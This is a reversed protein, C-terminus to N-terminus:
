SPARAAEVAAEGDAVTSVVDFDAVLLGGIAARMRDYDDAVVIRPRTM